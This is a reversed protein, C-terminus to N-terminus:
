RGMRNFVVCESAQVANIFKGENNVTSGVGSTNNGPNGDTTFFHVTEDGANVFLAHTNGNSEVRLDVDVSNENFITESGDARMRSRSTGGVVTSIDFEGDESGDSVDTAKINITAYDLSNGGDDDGSFKIKGILDNDAPSASDRNMALIPGANADADTSTLTLNDSNDTTTLDVGGVRVKTLAM